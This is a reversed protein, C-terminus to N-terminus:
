GIALAKWSVVAWSAGERRLLALREFGGIGSNPLSTTFLIAEKGDRSMIPLSLHHKLAEPSATAASGGRTGTRLVTGGRRVVAVGVNRCTFASEMQRLYLKDLLEPQPTPGTWGDELSLRAYFKASFAPADAHFIPAGQKREFFSLVGAEAAECAPTRELGSAPAAPGTLLTFGLTLILLRM